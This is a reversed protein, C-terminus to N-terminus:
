ELLVSCYGKSKFLNTNDIQDGRSASRGLPILLAAKKSYLIEFLTTAGAHSVICDAAAFLDGIEDGIYEFQQYTSLKISTDINGRGCIHCIQFQSTIRSLSQRVITNIRVSGLSGGIILIM